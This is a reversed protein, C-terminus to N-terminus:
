EAPVHRNLLSKIEAFDIAGKVWYENAGNRLAQNRSAFDSKASFMIVILKDLGLVRRIQRLVEIGDIGPMMIDLIMLDVAYRQLYELATEGDYMCSANYGQKRILKALADCTDMSDDVVLVSAAM